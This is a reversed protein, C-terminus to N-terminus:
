LYAGARFLCWPKQVVAVATKKYENVSRLSMVNRDKRAWPVRKLQAYWGHPCWLLPPQALKDAAWLQKCVM